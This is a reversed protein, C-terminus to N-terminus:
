NFWPQNWFDSSIPKMEKSPLTKPWVKALCWRFLLRSFFLSAYTFLWREMLLCDFNDQAGSLKRPLVPWSSLLNPILTRPKIAPLTSYDTPLCGWEASAPVGVSSPPSPAAWMVGGALSIAQAVLSVGSGPYPCHPPQASGAEMELSTSNLHVKALFGGEWRDWHFRKKRMIKVLICM